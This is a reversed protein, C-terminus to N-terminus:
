PPPGIKVPFSDFNYSVRSRKNTNYTKSNTFILRVAEYFDRPSNYNGAMLEERVTGLDM